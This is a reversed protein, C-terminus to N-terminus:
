TTIISASLFILSMTFNLFMLILPKKFKVGWQISIYQKYTKKFRVKHIVLSVTNINNKRSKISIEIMYNLKKAHM